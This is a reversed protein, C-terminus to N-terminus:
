WLITPQRRLGVIEHGIWTTHKKDACARLAANRQKSPFRTLRPTRKPRINTSVATPITPTAANISM